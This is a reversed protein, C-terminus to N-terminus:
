PKQLSNQPLLRTPDFSQTGKWIAFAARLLKRGLVIFAQTAAFGKARLAQYLAKLANSRSAAFGALYIQRRLLAPGRKSLRRQGHRTGSDNPRPDLGCYAVLADANAFDLRSLLTALLASTQPGIGPITRLRQCGAALQEDSAILQQVKADMADFLDEFAQELGSADLDSTNVGCVTQRMASRQRALQARRTLLEQLRQQLASAPQWQHLQEHHQALYRAILRSDVGDTKARTGLAQAYFHVDRANLVYVQMGAQNALLALLAHYRGTSEMAILSGPPLQCLWQGIGCADNVVSRARLEGHTSIVLEAKSVDVGIFLREEQM